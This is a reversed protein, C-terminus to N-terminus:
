TLEKEYAGCVILKFEFKFTAVGEMAQAGSQRSVLM